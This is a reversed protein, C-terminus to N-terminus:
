AGKPPNRLDIQTLTHTAFVVDWVGDTTTPRLAVPFGRFAKGVRWIGGRVFIEGKDQVRRILDGQRYELPPLAEPFPRPSVRYRSAPTAYGLAEHPREQNYVDRWADFAPQCAALASFTRRRLVEVTLTHHFREDKGQTQPHYPRGHSVTIGLRLLWVTLPTYPHDWDDGWPSGNDMIMRDPLGYRRFITTLRGRVTEGREDPCAEVGLAFRSHDDLVTLPHCRGQMLPFHGKFDMQWLQNPAAHEFRQWPRHKAGEAPDIRGQRQLIASITSPSPVGEVGLTLLRAHLKRPGWAPHADRLELVPRERGRATRLPSHHPRRSVDTLGTVGHAAYRHLWKYGTTPSIRYRRCLERVNAEPAQALLVFERRLAVTSVEQWPMVVEQQQSTMGMITDVMDGIM